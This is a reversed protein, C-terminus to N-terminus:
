RCFICLLFEEDYPEVNDAIAPMESLLQEPAFNFEAYELEMESAIKTMIEIYFNEDLVSTEDDIEGKDDHFNQYIHEEVWMEEIDDGNEMLEESLM